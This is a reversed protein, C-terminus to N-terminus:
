LTNMIISLFILKFLNKCKELCNEDIEKFFWNIYM